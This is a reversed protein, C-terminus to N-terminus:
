RKTIESGAFVLDLYRFGCFGEENCLKSLDAGAPITVTYKKHRYKYNVTVTLDPRKALAEFVSRHFSIYNGAEIILESGKASEIDRIAKKNFVEYENIRVPTYNSGAGSAAGAAASAAQSTGSPTSPTVAPTELTFNGGAKLIDLASTFLDILNRFEDRTINEWEGEGPYHDSYIGEKANDFELIASLYVWEVGEEEPAEEGDYVIIIEGNAEREWLSDVISNCLEELAELEPELDAYYYDGTATTIIDCLAIGANCLATYTSKYPEELPDGLEAWEELAERYDWTLDVYAEITKHANDSIIIVTGPYNHDSEFNLDDSLVWLIEGEGDPIFFLDDMYDIFEKVDGWTPNDVPGPAGAAFVTVSGMLMAMGLIAALMKKIKKM